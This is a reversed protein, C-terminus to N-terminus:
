AIWILFFLSSVEEPYINEGGSKIRGNSRGVLWLNGSDDISGIDGTDFWVENVDNSPRPSIKDYYRLMLHPGRTLIRGVHSSDDLFIKMEVHPAPKGVCVGEPQYISHCKSQAYSQFHPMSTEGTPDCLMLFTLSSCTETMGSPCSFSLQFIIYLFFFFIYFVKLFPKLFFSFFFFFFFFTLSIWILVENKVLYLWSSNYLFTFYEARQLFIIAFLNLILRRSRLGPMFDKNRHLGRAFINVSPLIQYVVM